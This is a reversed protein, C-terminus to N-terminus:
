AALQPLVVRPRYVAYWVSDNSFRYVDVRLGGDDDLDVYAIFFEEGQKFLFLTAYESTRLWGGYKQVFQKIQHQTLCLQDLNGGVSNFFQNFRGNKVLEHVQVKTAPTATAPLGLGWSTFCDDIWVFLDKAKALTETGDTPDLTIEEKGSILKLFGNAERYKVVFVETVEALVKRGEDTNTWYLINEDMGLKALTKGIVVLSESLVAGFLGFLKEM